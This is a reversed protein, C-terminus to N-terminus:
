KRKFNKRHLLVQIVDLPITLVRFVWIILAFLLYVPFLLLEVLFPMSNLWIGFNFCIDAMWEKFKDWNKM